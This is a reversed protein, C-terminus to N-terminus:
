GSRYGNVHVSSTVNGYMNRICGQFRTSFGYIELLKFLYEHSINDSANSFDLSLICILTRTYETCAIAERITALVEYITRGKIGCHQSPQLLTHLWPSLRKALIRTLLRLDANLLILHRFDEPRTSRPKKPVCVMVGHKQNDSIMGTDYMHDVMELLQHKIAEWMVELFEQNIGGVGPAKNTKGRKISDRLEDMTTPTDLDIEAEPPFKRRVARMLQHINDENVPIVDFKTRMHEKLARLIGAMTTHTIANRDQLRQITWSEHRKRTRIFRYLTPNEDVLREYDETNLFFRQQEEHHLRTIKAELHKLTTATTEHDCQARIMTNIVEYYFNEM